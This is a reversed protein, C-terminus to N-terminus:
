KIKNKNKHLQQQQQQQQQIVTGVGFTVAKTNSLVPVNVSPLGTTALM